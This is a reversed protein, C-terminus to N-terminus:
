VLEAIQMLLKETANWGLCADTISKGYVGGTVDQTGEEIYSEILLGRVYERIHPSLRRSELIELAIRPQESFCKGSNSHNTDIVIAKNTCETKEYMTIMERIDEFHYNPATAGTRDVSGRLIAHAYPNGKTEVEWGNYLFTHGSQAAIISNLMVQLDGSMPNKFGAPMDIGSATLRHQQNETSRAGIAVYSLLDDLYPHNGPYLMEDAGSLGTEAIIRLHIKRISKIGEVMNPKKSPDPQHLMGKYGTGLTRPKNTYIRPIIVLREATQEQIKALRTVYDCVADENDASCPGVIVLFRSFKGTFCSRISEDREKKADALYKDLPLEEIIEKPPPQRQLQKFPM